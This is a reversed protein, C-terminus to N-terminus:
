TTPFNFVHVKRLGWIDFDLFIMPKSNTLKVCEDRFAVDGGPFPYKFERQVLDNTGKFYYRWSANTCNTLSALTIDNERCFPYLWSTESSESTLKEALIANIETLQM